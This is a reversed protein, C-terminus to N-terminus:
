KKSKRIMNKLDTRYYAGFVLVLLVIIGVIGWVEPKNVEDVLLEQVTRGNDDSGASSQSGGASAAAALGTSSVGTSSPESNDGTNGDSDGGNSDSGDGDGNNGNGNGGNNGNGNGGNNNTNSGEVYVLGVISSFDGESDSWSEWSGSVSRGYASGTVQMVYNTLNFIATAETNETMVTKSVPGATLEVEFPPLGTIFVKNVPDYLQLRYIGDVRTLVLEMQADYIDMCCYNNLWNSGAIYNYTPNNEYRPTAGYRTEIDRHQNNVIINHKVLISSAGNSNAGFVIGDGSYYFDVDDRLQNDTILNAEILLNEYAGNIQIGNNNGQIYNGFITTNVVNGVLHIGDRENNNITNVSITTNNTDRVTIGYWNKTIQSNNVKVNDSGEIYVGSGGSGTINAGNVITGDSNYINVGNEGNNFITGGDITTNTSNKLNIGNNQNNAINCNKILTNSSGNVTIGTGNTSSVTVGYLTVKDTNNVLIGSDKDTIITFGSIKTGAAQSGNVLFAVSSSYLKTGVNSILSLKKNITLHLDHYSKGLFTIISGPEAKDLISQIQDNLSGNTYYSADQVYVVDQVSYKKSYVPSWNGAADVAAFKLSITDGIEFPNSYIIRTSSTRPDSGDITYYVTAKGSDDTAKITVVQITYFVEAKPNITATPAIIDKKEVTVIKNGTITSGNQLTITLTVTYKGAKSYVHTPNRKASTSGDGFDWKWSKPNGLTGDTFQITLATGKVPESTFVPAKDNFAYFVSDTGVYLTGDTGIVPSGIVNGTKYSWKLTGDPNLAYIGTKSGVYLTGDSGIAVSLTGSDVGGTDFTWLLSGVNAFKHKVAYVNNSAVVYVVGNSISPSGYLPEGVYLSGGTGKNAIYIWKQTGDPNLAIIFGSQVGLYITGDPGVSPSSYYVNVSQNAIFQALNVSWKTTGDPNLAHLFGNYNAIYITGDPGIAPTSAYLEGVDYTWKLTGNSNLAYFTGNSVPIYITGKGDIAPSSGFNYDGLNYTWKLTGNPRFAYLTSNKWCSVYVTGDSGITPSGYLYSATQYAWKLSGNPKFAYLIGSSGGGVYITGDSAVASSGGATINYMWKTTNTQPGTYNSEGTHQINNQYTPWASDALGTTNADDDTINITDAASVAGLSVVCLLVFVMLFVSKKNEKLM